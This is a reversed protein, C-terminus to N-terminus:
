KRKREKTKEKMGFNENTRFKLEIEKTRERISKRKGKEGVRKRTDYTDRIYIMRKVYKRQYRYKEDWM